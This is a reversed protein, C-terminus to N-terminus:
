HESPLILVGSEQWMVFEDLPFDTFRIHQQIMPPFAKHDDEDWDNYATVSATGNSQKVLRWVTFHREETKDFYSAIIDILWWCEMLDAAARVGDTMRLGFPHLYYHQTGVFNSLYDRIEQPTKTTNTM